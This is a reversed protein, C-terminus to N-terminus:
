AVKVEKYVGCEYTNIDFFADDCTIYFMIDKLDALM